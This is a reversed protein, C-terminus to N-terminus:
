PTLVLNAEAGDVPAPADAVALTREMAVVELFKPLDSALSLRVLMGDGQAAVPQASRVFHNRAFYAMLRVYDDAGRIGGVWALAQSPTDGAPAEATGGADRQLLRDIVASDFQAVLVLGDGSRRYEYQLVYRDAQAVARAIEPRALAASDASRATIANAMAAKLAAARDGDSQSAVPAEGSYSGPAAAFVALPLLWALALVPVRSRILSRM